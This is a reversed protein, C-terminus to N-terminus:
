SLVCAKKRCQLTNSLYQSYSGRRLQKVIYLCTSVKIKKVAYEVQDLRHRARFVQGFGGSAIWGLEEFELAYRSTELLPAQTDPTWLFSSLAKHYHGRLSSLEECRYTDDILRLDCLQIVSTKAM